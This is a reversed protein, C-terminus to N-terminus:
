GPYQNWHWTGGFDTGEDVIKIEGVTRLATQILRVASLLGGFGTGVIFVRCKRPQIASTVTERPLFEKWQDMDEPHLRKELEIRYSEEAEADSMSLEREHTSPSATEVIPHDLIPLTSM